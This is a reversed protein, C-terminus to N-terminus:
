PQNVIGAPITISHDMSTQLDRLPHPPFTAVSLEPTITCTLYIIFHKSIYKTKIRSVSFALMFKQYNNKRTDVIM